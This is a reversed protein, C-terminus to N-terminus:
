KLESEGSGAGRLLEPDDPLLGRFRNARSSQYDIKERVSSEIKAEGEM